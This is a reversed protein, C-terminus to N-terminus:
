KDPSEKEDFTTGCEFCYTTDEPLGADCNPCKKEESKARQLIETPTPRDSIPGKAETAIVDEDMAKPGRQPTGGTKGEYVYQSPGEFFINGGIGLEKADKTKLYGDDDKIVQGTQRYKMKRILILLLFIVIIIVVIAIIVWTYDDDDGDGDKVGPETPDNPNSNLEFEELNSYGDEDPDLAADNPDLPKLSYVREFYDSMGDGDTDAKTPDTSEIGNNYEDFNLLRDNDPDEFGDSANADLAPYQWEWVDPLQDGDFDAPRPKTSFNWTSGSLINGAIDTCDIIVTYIRDHTLNEFPILVLLRKVPDYTARPIQIEGELNSYLQLEISSANLPENFVARISVNVSVNIEDENPNRTLIIPALYDEQTVNIWFQDIDWNDQTDTVNLSVLFDGASDFNYSPAPGYLTVIKTRLDITWTYNAIEGQNDTSNTGDFYVTVPNERKSVEINAGTNASPKTADLLILRYDAFPGKNGSSDIARATLNNWGDELEVEIRYYGLDMSAFDEGAPTSLNNVYVEVKAGLEAFGSVSLKPKNTGDPLSFISPANPPTVDRTTTTVSNSFQSTKGVINYARIKFSYTTESVLDTVTFSTGSTVNAIPIAEFEATSGSKNIFISYGKINDEPNASWSLNVTDGKVEEVNLSQPKSPTSLNNKYTTKFVAAIINVAYNLSEGCRDKFDPDAWDYNNEMWTCNRYGNPDFTTNYAVLWGADYPDGVGLSVLPTLYSDFESSYTSTKSNVYNMYDNYHTPVRWYTENMVNGFVSLDAIYHTMAGLYLTGNYIDGSELYNVAQNHVQWARHAGSSNMLIGTENFYMVQLQTDGFGGGGTKDPLETGYLYTDLNDLLYQKENPNLLDLAHEAMWDHTGYKPIKPDSSFENGSPGNKWAVVPSFLILSQFLILSIVILTLFVKPKSNINIPIGGL